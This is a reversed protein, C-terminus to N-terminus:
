ADAILELLKAFDALSHGAVLGDLHPLAAAIGGQIPSYGTKGSHPNSWLVTRALLGLRQMQEGLLRPDGREWGDSAIVIVARRVTRRQGYRNVFERLVDGLRTGGSWDPVAQGAAVLAQEPNRLGLPVTVRTLKTGLTFVETTHPAAALVRHALRLLSDAYPEMSGSIDILFTVQRARTLPRKFRIPGPEGARRLQERVTRAADIDGSRHRRRRVGPRAPITVHLGAFLRNLRAREAASLEAIDRHRLSEEDSALVAILTTRDADAADGDDVSAQAVSRSAQAPTPVPVPRDSFWRDFTRDFTDIDDPGSCLTARGAWYVQSPEVVGLRTAADIFTQTRDPSITLGAARLAHAFGVFISLADQEPKSAYASSAIM